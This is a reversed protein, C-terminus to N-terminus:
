KSLTIVLITRMCACVYVHPRMGCNSYLAKGATGEASSCVRHVELGQIEGLGLGVYVWLCWKGEELTMKRM